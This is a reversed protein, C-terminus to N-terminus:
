RSARGDKLQTRGGLKPSLSPGKVRATSHRICKSELDPPCFLHSQHTDLSSFFVDINLFRLNPGSHPSAPGRQQGRGGRPKEGEEEGGAAASSPRQYGTESQLRPSAQTATKSELKIGPSPVERQKTPVQLHFFNAQLQTQGFLPWRQPLAFLGLPYGRLRTHSNLNLHVLNRLVPWVCTRSLWQPWKLSTAVRNLM